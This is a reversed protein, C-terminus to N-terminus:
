CKFCAPFCQLCKWNCNLVNVCACTKLYQMFTSTKEGDEEAFSLFNFDLIFCFLIIFVVCLTICDICLSFNVNVICLKAHYVPREADELTYVSVRPSPSACMWLLRDPYLATCLQRALRLFSWFSMRNDTLTLLGVGGLVETHRHKRMEKSRTSNFSADVCRCAETMSYRHLVWLYSYPSPSLFVTKWSFCSCSYSTNCLRTIHGHHLYICYLAFRVLFPVRTSNGLNLFSPAFVVSALIFWLAPTPLSPASSQWIIMHSRESRQPLAEPSSDSGDDGSICLMSTVPQLPLPSFEVMCKDRTQITTCKLLIDSPCM